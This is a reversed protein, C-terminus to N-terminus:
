FRYCIENGKNIKKNGKNINLTLHIADTKIEGTARARTKWTSRM